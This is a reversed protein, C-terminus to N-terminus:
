GKFLLQKLYPFVFYSFDRLPGYLVSRDLWAENVLSFKINLTDFAIVFVGMILASVLLSVLAGLIKNATSLMAMEAVKTLLRGLLFAGVCVGILIVIFAIVNLVSENVALFPQLWRSLLKSFQFALFVSLVLGILSIVQELIGKRFGHIAGPLALLIIVIDLTNM